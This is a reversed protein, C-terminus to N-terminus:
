NYNKYTENTIAMAMCGVMWGFDNIRYIIASGVYLLKWYLLEALGVGVVWRYRAGVMKPM